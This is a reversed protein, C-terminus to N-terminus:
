LVINMISYASGHIIWKSINIERKFFRFHLMKVLQGLNKVDVIMQAHIKEEQLNPQSQPARTEHYMQCYNVSLHRNRQFHLVFKKSHSPYM